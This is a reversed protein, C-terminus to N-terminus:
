RRVRHLAAVTTLDGIGGIPHVRADEDGLNARLRQVSETVYREADRYPGDRFTWYAMPMWVDVHPALARYPFSPWLRQNIVELQVAPYVIAAVPAAPGVMERLQKALEVVRRNRGAVAS